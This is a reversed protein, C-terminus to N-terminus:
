QQNTLNIEREWKIFDNIAIMFQESTKKDILESRSFCTDSEFFHHNAGSTIHVVHEHNGAEELGAILPEINHDPIVLHDNEAYISFIPVTLSRTVPDPDYDIIRSLYGTKIFKSLTSYSSLLKRRTEVKKHVEDEILGECTLESSYDDLVQELVSISPGALNVVFSIDDPKKNAALQVM